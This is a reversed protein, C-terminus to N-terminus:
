LYVGNYIEKPHYEVTVTHVLEKEEEDRVEEDYCEYHFSGVLDVLFHSPMIAM